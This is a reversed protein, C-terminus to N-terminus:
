WYHYLSEQSPFCVYTVNTSMRKQNVDLMAANDFKKGFLKTLRSRNNEIFSVFQDDHNPEVRKDYLSPNLDLFVLYHSSLVALVLGVMLLTKEPRVSKNGRQHQHQQDPKQDFSTNLDETISTDQRINKKQNRQRFCCSPLLAKNTILLARDISVLVLIFSSFHTLFYTLFTHFKCILSSHLRIIVVHGVLSWPCTIVSLLDVLSLYFLYRFTSSQRMSKRSFILMNLLNGLVGLGIVLGLAILSALPWKEEM